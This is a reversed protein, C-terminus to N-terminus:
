PMRKCNSRRPEEAKGLKVYESVRPNLTPEGGSLQLVGGQRSIELIANRVDADDPAPLHTSVFCFDCAQNCHFHIRVIHSPIREGTPSRYVDRTVLERRIQEKTSSIVTLKRRIRDETIPKADLNPSHLWLASPVGPCRDAALCEQCVAVRSFGARAGGGPTLAYLHAVRHPKDFVCPPLLGGPDFQLPIGNTRAAEDLREIARAADAVNAIGSRDPGDVVATVVIRM